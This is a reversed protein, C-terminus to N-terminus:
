CLDEIKLDLVPLEKVIKYYYSESDDTPQNNVFNQVKELDKEQIKGLLINEDCHGKGHYYYKFLYMM